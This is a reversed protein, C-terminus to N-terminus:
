CIPDDGDATITKRDIFDKLLSVTYLEQVRRCDADQVPCAAFSTCFPLYTCGRCKERVRDTRCFENRVAEDTTGRFVDGFCTDPDCHDCPYLKGDPGIVVSGGDAMCHFVDFSLKPGFQMLTEFGAERILARADLIKKMLAYEDPGRRVYDLPSFYVRVNKKHTVTESLDRLFQPVGDWISEETNCRVLVRIGAESMDSIGRMVSRYYDRYGVYRKRAIYDRECGDVSIQVGTVNWLGKMKEVVEDTILSGNSVMGGRYRVGAKQLGESVRDIIDPRLLPEGGFWNIKVPEIAHTEVIYRVVADATEATMSVPKMGEEYCYVCRANCGLTPLVMFARHGEKKALTRMLTSVSQYYATEDKGEPVLFLGRILAEKGINSEAANQLDTELLQKTLTHFAYRKGNHTFTLAFQSPVYTVGPQPEQAPLIKVLAADQPNREIMLAKSVTSEKM